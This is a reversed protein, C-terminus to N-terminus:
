EVLCYPRLVCSVPVTAVAPISSCLARSTAACGLTSKSDIFLLLVHSLFYGLTALSTKFFDMRCSMLTKMYLCPARIQVELLIYKSPLRHM